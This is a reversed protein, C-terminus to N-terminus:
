SGTRNGVPALAKIMFQYEVLLYSHKVIIEFSKGLKGAKKIVIDNVFWPLFTIVDTM